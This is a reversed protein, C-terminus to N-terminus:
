APRVRRALVGAAPEVVKDEFVDANVEGWGQVGNEVMGLGEEM